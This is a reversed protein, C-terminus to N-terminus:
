NTEGDGLWPGPGIPPETSAGLGLGPGAEPPIELYRRPRPPKAEEQDVKTCIRRWEGIAAGLYEVTHALQQLMQDPVMPLRENAKRGAELLQLAQGQLRCLSATQQQREAKDVSAALRKMRGRWSLVDQLEHRLAMAQDFALSGELLLLLREAQADTLPIM